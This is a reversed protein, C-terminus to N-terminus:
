SELHRRSVMDDWNVKSFGWNQLEEQRKVGAGQRRKNQAQKAQEGAQTRQPRQILAETSSPLYELRFPLFSATDPVIPESPRSAIRRERGEAATKANRVPLRHTLASDDMQGCMERWAPRRAAQKSKM